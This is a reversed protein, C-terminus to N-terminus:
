QVRLTAVVGGHDSPWWGDATRDGPDNGTVVTEIAGVGNRCFVYDIREDFRRAPDRLEEARCTFGAGKGADAWADAFGADMFYQRTATTSDDHRSNFDGTIVIPDRRHQQAAILECAQAQQVAASGDTTLPQLHTTVIRLPQGHAVLDVQAWTRVDRFAGYDSRADFVHAARGAVSIGVAALDHRLLIAEGDTLRVDELDPPVGAPVQNDNGTTAVAIEYVVGRERLSRVLLSTFDYVIGAAPEENFPPVTLSSPVRRRVLFAEQVCVVHPRHAVIEAAMRDLRGPIDSARLAAFASAAAEPVSARDTVAATVLPQLNAGLCLNRTMVTIDRPM